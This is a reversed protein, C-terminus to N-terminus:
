LVKLNGKVSLNSVESFLKAVYRKADAIQEEDDIIDADSNFLKFEKALHLQNLIKKNHGHVKEKHTNRKKIDTEKIHKSCRAIMNNKSFLISLKKIQYMTCVTNIEMARQTNENM